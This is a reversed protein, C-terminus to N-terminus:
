QNKMLFKQFEETDRIEDFAKSNAVEHIDVTGFVKAASLWAISQSIKKEFGMTKAAIIAIESQKAQEFLTSAHKMVREFDRMKYCCRYFLILSDLSLNKEESKLLDYSKDFEGQEFSIKALNEVALTHIMGEHTSNLLNELCRKASEVDGSGMMQNAEEMKGKLNPSMDDRTFNKFQRLTEFSQFTFLLFIIGIILYGMYFFFAAGMASLVLSIIFSARWAKQGMFGQLIVRLLHGGDLPLIPILNVVTWFLNIFKTVTIFYALYPGVSGLRLVTEIPILSAAFFLLFGFIPGMAIVIFEQWGKIKKGQPLTLGGFAFLQIQASQGFFTAALAHGYEHFLVSIFIVLTWIVTGALSYQTNIFGIIAAMIFFSPAIKVPIKKM